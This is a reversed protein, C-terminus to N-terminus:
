ELVFLGGVNEGRLSDEEMQENVATQTHANLINKRLLIKCKYITWYKHSHLASANYLVYFYM